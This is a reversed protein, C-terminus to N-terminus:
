KNFINKKKSFGRTHFFLSIKRKNKKKQLYKHLMKLFLNKKKKLKVVQFYNIFVYKTPRSSFIEHNM